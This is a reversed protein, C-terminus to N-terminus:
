FITRIRLFLDSDTRVIKRVFESGIYGCDIQSMQTKNAINWIKWSNVCVRNISLSHSSYM